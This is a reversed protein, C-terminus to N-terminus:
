PGMWPQLVNSNMRTYGRPGRDALSITRLNVVRGRKAGSSIEAYIETRPDNEDKVLLLQRVTFFIGPELLAEVNTVGRARGEEVTMVLGNNAMIFAPVKLRYMQNVRYDSMAQAERARSSACGTVYLLGFAAALLPVLRRAHIMM